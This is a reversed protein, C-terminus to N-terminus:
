EIIVEMNDILRTNDTYVAALIYYSKEKELEKVIDFTDTNVIEIYQVKNLKNKEVYQIFYKKIKDVDKNGNKILSIIELLGKNILVAAERAEASLYKNRSSMALGDKERITQGPIIKVPFNLDKVMKQIIFLQQRDKKGFVAINPLVINFLKAVVTTVGEFHGERFEGCLINSVDKVFVRTKIEGEPYMEKYSPAFLVDVNRNKLLEIDKKMQRPYKDFDEGEGFQIPNVFISVIVIDSNEKAIDILSLHGEHLAGMTPVFGIVHGNQKERLSYEQMDKINEIIKM